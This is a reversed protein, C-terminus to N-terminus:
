ATRRRPLGVAPLPAVSSRRAATAALRPRRTSSLTPRQSPCPSAIVETGHGLHLCAMGRGIRMGLVPSGGRQGCQLTRSLTEVFDEEAWGPVRISTELVGVGWGTAAVGRAPRTVISCAPARGASGGSGGADCGRVESGGTGGGGMGCGGTGRAGAACPAGVAGLTSDYGVTRPRGDTDRGGGAVGIVGAVEEGALGTTASGITSSFRCGVAM